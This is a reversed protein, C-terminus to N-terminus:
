CKARLRRALHSERVRNRGTVLANILDEAAQGEIELYRGTLGDASGDSRLGFIAYENIDHREPQVAKFCRLIRGDIYIGKGNAFFLNECLFCCDRVFTDKRNIPNKLTVKTGSVIINPHDKSKVIDTVWYDDPAHL